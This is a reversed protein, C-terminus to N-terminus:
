NIQCIVVGIEGKKQKYRDIIRVLYGIKICQDGQIKTSTNHQFYRSYEACPTRDIIFYTLLHATCVINLNFHELSLLQFSTCAHNLRSSTYSHVTSPFSLTRLEIILTRLLYGVRAIDRGMDQLSSDNDQHNSM